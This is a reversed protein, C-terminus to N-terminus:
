TAITPLTSSDSLRRIASATVSAFLPASPMDLYGHHIDDKGVRALCRVLACGKVRRDLVRPDRTGHLQPHSM